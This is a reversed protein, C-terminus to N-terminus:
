KRSSERNEFYQFAENLQRTVAEAYQRKQPHNNYLDPHYKKVLKKYAAKIEAFSAAPAVELAEYYATEKGPIASPPAATKSQKQQAHYGNDTTQYSYSEQQSKDAYAEQHPLNSQIIRILRKFLM